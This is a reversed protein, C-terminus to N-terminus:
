SRSAQGVCLRDGVLAQPRRDGRVGGEGLADVHDVALDRVLGDGLRVPQRVRREGVRERGLDRMPEGLAARAPFITGVQRTPSIKVTLATAGASLALIGVIFGVLGLLGLVTSVRGLIGAHRTRADDNKVGDARPLQRVRRIVSVFAGVREAVDGPGDTTEVQRVHLREPESVDLREGAARWLWPRRGDGAPQELARLALVRRGTVPLHHADDRRDRERRVRVPERVLHDVGEHVAGPVTHEAVSGADPVSIM